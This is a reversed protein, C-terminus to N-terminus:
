GFEGSRKMRPSHTAGCASCASRWRTPSRPPSPRSRPRARLIVLPPSLLGVDLISLTASVVVFLLMLRAQRRDANEFLHYLCWGLVIFLAGGALEGLLLLRYTAAREAVRRMTEAADGAVIFGPILLLAPAGAASMLLYVAGARRAQAALPTQPARRNTDAGCIHPICVWKLVGFGLPM